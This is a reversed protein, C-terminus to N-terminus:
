LRALIERRKASYEDDALLGAARLSELELLSAGIASSSAAAPATAPSASESAGVAAPSPVALETALGLEALYAALGIEM